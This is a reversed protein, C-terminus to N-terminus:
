VVRKLVKAQMTETDIEIDCYEGFMFYTQIIEERTSEDLALLSEYVGDPDKLTIEIIM